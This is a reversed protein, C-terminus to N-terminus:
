NFFSVCNDIINTFIKIDNDFPLIFRDRNAKERYNDLKNLVMEEIIKMDNISKCEKYYVVEHDCTKNYPTLRDTLNKAKGIIYMRNKKHEETTLM